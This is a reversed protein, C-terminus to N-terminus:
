IYVCVEGRRDKNHPIVKFCGDHCEKAYARFYEIRMPDVEDSTIYVFSQHFTAWVRERSFGVDVGVFTSTLGEVVVDRAVRGVQSTPDM